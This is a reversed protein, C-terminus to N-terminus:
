EYNLQFTDSAPTGMFRQAFTFAPLVYKEYTANTANYDFTHDAGPILELEYPVNYKGLQQALQISQQFPVLRDKTGLALFTPPYQADVNETASYERLLAMLQDASIKSDMSTMLWPFQGGGFAAITLLIIPDKPGKPSYSSSVPTRLAQAATALLKPVPTKIRMDTLNTWAPYLSIVAAPRPILKYGAMVVLGGGASQGFLTILDPNIPVITTLNSRTWDWADQIDVIMDQLLVGPSLRYDISVLVWGRDMTENFEKDTFAAEKSGFVYAGGHIAFLVPYGSQPPAVKPPVYVDLEIKLNGVTKYTYTTANFYYPAANVFAACFLLALYIKFM